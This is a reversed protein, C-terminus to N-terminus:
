SSTKARPVSKRAATMHKHSKPILRATARVHLAMMGCLPISSSGDASHTKFMAACEAATRAPLLEQNAVARNLVPHRVHIWTNANSPSMGLLQGQGEQIPNQKLYTLICLLKDALTPLPCTDYTSSRRSPRPQGDLTRHQMSAVFAQEFHPLLVMSNMVIQTISHREHCSACVMHRYRSSEGEVGSTSSKVLKVTSSNVASTGGKSAANKSSM